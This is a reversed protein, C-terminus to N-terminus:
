VGPCVGSMHHQIVRAGPEGQHAIDQKQPGDASGVKRATIVAIEDVGDGALQPGQAIFHGENGTM